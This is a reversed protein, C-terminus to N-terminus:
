AINRLAKLKKFLMFFSTKESNKLFGFTLETKNLKM